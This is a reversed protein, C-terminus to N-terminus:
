LRRSLHSSLDNLLIPPLLSFVLTRTCPKARISIDGSLRGGMERQGRRSSSWEERRDAQEGGDAATGVAERQPRATTSDGGCLRRLGLRKRHEGGTRSEPTSRSLVVYLLVPMAIM